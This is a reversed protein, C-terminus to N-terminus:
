FDTNMAGHIHVDVLGPIVRAGGLNVVTGEDPGDGQFVEGFVNGEVTFGGRVFGNETFLDANKYIMRTTSM